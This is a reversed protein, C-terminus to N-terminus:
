DIVSLGLVLGLECLAADPDEVRITAMGLARAPKLNRGIDDLFVAESAAVGLDRCALEYIRPDPKQLGVVSSEIFVDFHERVAHPGRESAGGTRWNNTLAATRLGAARIRRLAELMQPRAGLGESMRRVLERASVAAYGANACDSEFAAYFEDLALLGRELRGWAGEPGTAGILRNLSGVALGLEREYGAIAPMPSGMVVGGLDFIVARYNPV